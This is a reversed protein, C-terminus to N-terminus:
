TRRERFPAWVGGRGEGGFGVVSFIGFDEERAGALAPPFTAYVILLMLAVLPWAGYNTPLQLVQQIVARRAPLRAPPHAPLPPCPWPCAPLSFQNLQGETPFCCNSMPIIFYSLQGTGFPLLSCYMTCTHVYAAVGASSSGERWISGGGM